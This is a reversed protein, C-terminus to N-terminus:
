SYEVEVSFGLSELCYIAFGSDALNFISVQLNVAASRAGMWGPQVILVSGVMLPSMGQITFFIVGAPSSKEAASYSRGYQAGRQDPHSLFSAIGGFRRGRPRIRHHQPSDLEILFHRVLFSHQAAL